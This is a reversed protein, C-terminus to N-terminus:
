TTVLEREPDPDDDGDRAEAVDHLRDEEELQEILHEGEIDLHPLLRHLRGPLQWATDGFLAM